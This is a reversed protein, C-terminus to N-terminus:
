ERKKKEKDDALGGGDFFSFLSRVQRPLCKVGALNLGRHFEIFSISHSKDTDMLTFLTLESLHRRQLYWRLWVLQEEPKGLPLENSVTKYKCDSNIEINPLPLAEHQPSLDPEELLDRVETRSLIQTYYNNRGLCRRGVATTTEHLKADSCIAEIRQLVNRLLSLVEKRKKPVISKITKTKQDTYVWFAVRGREFILTDVVAIETSSVESGETDGKGSKKRGKDVLTKKNNNKNRTGWNLSNGVNSIARFTTLVHNRKDFSSHLKAKVQWSFKRVITDASHKPSQLQINDKEQSMSSSPVNLKKMNVHSAIFDTMAAEASSRPENKGLNLLM